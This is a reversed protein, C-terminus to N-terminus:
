DDTLAVKGRSTSLLSRIQVFIDEEMSLVRNRIKHQSPVKIAPDMTVIIHGYDENELSAFTFQYGVIWRALSREYRVQKEQISTPSSISLQEM